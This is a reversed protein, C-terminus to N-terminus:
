ALERLRRLLLVLGWTDRKCYALLAAVEADDCQGFLRKELALTASLGDAIELDSYGADTLAPLVSKLSFSGRFDAHYVHARVVPLLDVVRERIAELRPALDPLFEALDSLIRKEFPANYAAISSAGDCAAIVATALARRPDAAGSAIWEHHVHDRGNEIHVSMQVPVSQYPSCGKWMPTALGVTEFDLFAVPSTFQVLSSALEGEVILKGSQVARRQREAIVSDLPEDIDGIEEVGRELLELALEGSRYLTTVHHESVPGFCREQFPCEYPSECHTGRKADPMDARLMRLQRKITRPVKTTIAVVDKTVDKRVFLNRLNPYTCDSNLHMIEVRRVRLGARELVHAQVAADTLHQQKVSTTSKVEILRWGRRERVLIDVAVFVDDAIFSAEFIVSAGSAIAQRTAEIRSDDNPILIGGPFETRAREGVRNGQDFIAQLEADPELEPADPEHVRLWLQRHCQLGVQVRSKSLRTRTSTSANSTM